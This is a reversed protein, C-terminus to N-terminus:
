VPGKDHSLPGQAPSKADHVLHRDQSLRKSPQLSMEPGQLKVGETLRKKAITRAKSTFHTNVLKQTKNCVLILQEQEGTDLTGSKSLGTIQHKREVLIVNLAIQTKVAMCVNPFKEVMDELYRLPEEEAEKLSGIIALGITDDGAGLENLPHEEMYKVTHRLALVYCHVATYSNKILTQTIRSSITVPCASGICTLMTSKSLCFSYLEVWTASLSEALVEGGECDTKELVDHGIHLAENIMDANVATIWGDHMLEHLAYHIMNLTRTSHEENEAAKMEADDSQIGSSVKVATQHGSKSQDLTGVLSARRRKSAARKSAVNLIAKGSTKGGGAAVIETKMAELKQWQKPAMSEVTITRISELVEDASKWDVDKLLNDEEMFKVKFEKMKVDLADEAHKLALMQAHTVKTMGLKNLLWKMATGNVVLTGFALTATFFMVKRRIHVPVNENQEVLLALSLGVAGRLGSFGIVFCDKVSMGYGMKKLCPYFMFTVGMRIISCLIYLLFAKGFEAATTEKHWIAREASILGAIFFVLTNAIYELAEWFKEVPEHAAVSINSKGKYSYYVGLSVCCLIGSTHFLEATYFALYCTFLTIAMEALEDDDIRSLWHSSVVGFIWGVLLGGFSLTIFAGCISWGDHNTAYDDRVGLSYLYMQFCVTFLVYATGDNVLSEGEIITALKKSAGVEKLVAVVAVPDTASLISGLMLCLSFDNFGYPQGDPTDMKDFIGYFILATLVASILMGPGALLTFQGIAIRMIHFHSAYASAFVLPPLFVYMLTHPDIRALVMMSAGFEGFDARLFNSCAFPGHILTGICGSFFFLQVTYPFKVVSFPLKVCPWSKRVSFTRLATGFFLVFCVGLIATPSHGAYPAHDNRPYYDLIGAM